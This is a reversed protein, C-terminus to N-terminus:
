PRQKGQKLLQEKLKDASWYKCGGDATLVRYHSEEFPQDDYILIFNALESMKDPEKEGAAAYVFPRGSLLSKAEIPPELYKKEWLVDINDPLKDNHDSQYTIIAKGIDMIRELNRNRLDNKKAENLGDMAQRYASVARVLDPRSIMLKEPYTFRTAWQGRLSGSKV